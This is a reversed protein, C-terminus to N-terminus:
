GRSAQDPGTRTGAGINALADLSRQRSQRSERLVQARPPEVWADPEQLSGTALRRRLLGHCQGDRLPGPDDPQAAQAEAVVPCQGQLLGGYGAFQQGIWVQHFGGQVLGQLSATVGRSTGHLSHTGHCDLPLRGMQHLDLGPCRPKGNLAAGEQDITPCDLEGLGDIATIGVIEDRFQLRPGALVLLQREVLAHGRGRPPMLSSAHVSPIRFSDDRRGIM